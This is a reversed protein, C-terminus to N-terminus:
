AAKRRSKPAAEPEARRQGLGMSRALESRRKAYNPAVMPYDSPLGWKTRYDAPTLGRATLHRKLSKYRQGDELSILYDPTITKKIPIPPTPKESQIPEPRGLQKLASHVATILETLGTQGISNKTIYAGVIEATLGVLEASNSSNEM